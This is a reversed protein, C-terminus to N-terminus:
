LHPSSQGEIVVSNDPEDSGAHIVVQTITQATSRQTDLLGSALAIAQLAVNAASFLKAARAGALNARAELLYEEMTMALESTIQGTALARLETVRAIVKASADLRSALEWITKKTANATSYHNRYAQTAPIGQARDISFADQRQTLKTTAM